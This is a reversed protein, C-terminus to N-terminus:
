GTVAKVNEDIYAARWCSHTILDFMKKRSCNYSFHQKFTEGLVQLKWM